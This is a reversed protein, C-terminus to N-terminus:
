INIQVGKDGSVNQLIEDWLEEGIEIKFLEQTDQSMHQPYVVIQEGVEAILKSEEEQLKVMDELSNGNSIDIEYPLADPFGYKAEILLGEELAAVMEPDYIFNTCQGDEFLVATLDEEKTEYIKSVIMNKDGKENYKKNDNYTTLM